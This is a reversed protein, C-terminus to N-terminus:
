PNKLCEDHNDVNRLVIQSREKRYEWTFRYQTNVFAEFVKGGYSGVANKVEHTRLSPHRPNQELFLIQKQLQQYVDEPLREAQFLFRDTASLTFPM